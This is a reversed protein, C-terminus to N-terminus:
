IGFVIVVTKLELHMRTLINAYNEWQFCGILVASGLTQRQALQRSGFFLLFFATVTGVTSTESEQLFGLVM